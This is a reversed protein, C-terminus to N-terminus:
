PFSNTNIMKKGKSIQLSSWSTTLYVSILKIRKKHVHACKLMIEILKCLQAESSHLARFILFFVNKCLIKSDISQQHWLHATRDKLNWIFCRFYKIQPHFWTHFMSKTTRNRVNKNRAIRYICLRMCVCAGYSVIWTLYKSFDLWRHCKVTKRNM